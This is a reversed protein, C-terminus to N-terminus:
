QARQRRSSPCPHHQGACVLAESLRRPVRAKAGVMPAVDTRRTPGVCAGHMASCGEIILVVAQQHPTRLNREALRRLADLAKPSLPM